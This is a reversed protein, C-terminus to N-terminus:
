GNTCLYISRFGRRKAESEAFIVLARGVGMGQLAPLVAVIDM